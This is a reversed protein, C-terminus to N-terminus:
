DIVFYDFGFSANSPPTNACVSFGTASRNIYYGSAAAPSGVPSILIHPQASYKQTFSIDVLCGASAGGGTNVQISGATDTGSVSATGGSGLASGTTRAPTAGNTTIHHTISLDGSLQLSNASIQAATVNGGFTGDGSVNIGKQVTLDGQLSENGAVKLEQNVQATGLNATGSVTIDSLTLDSGVNLKGAVQLSGRVLVQGAFVANSQVTLVQKADGVTVDSKALQDLTTQSLDQGNIKTTTTTSHSKFYVAVVVMIAFLVVLAFFLLYISFRSFFSPGKRKPTQEQKAGSQGTDDATGNQPQGESNELSEGEARNQDNEAPKEEM